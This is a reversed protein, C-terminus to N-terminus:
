NYILTYVDGKETDNQSLPRRNEKNEYHIIIDGLVVDTMRDWHHVKQGKTTEIPAWIYKGAKEQKFTAGQTVFFIQEDDILDVLNKM